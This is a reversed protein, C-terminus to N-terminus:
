RHWWKPWRGTERLWRVSETLGDRLSRPRYDLDRKAARSDYAWDHRYIEVLDPTLQPVGNTWLAWAKMLAGTTKAVTDPFRLGPIKAGTLEGVLRYFEDQRVNEGGLM